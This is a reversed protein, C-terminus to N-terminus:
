EPKKTLIRDGAALGEEIEVIRDDSEGTKVFRKEAPGKTSLYVYKEGGEAFVAEKPM